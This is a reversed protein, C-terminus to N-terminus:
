EEASWGPIPTLPLDKNESGPVAIEKASPEEAAKEPVAKAATEKEEIKEAGKDPSTAPPSADASMAKNPPLAEANGKAQAIIEELKIGGEKLTRLFVATEAIAAARAVVPLKLYEDINDRLHNLNAKSEEGFGGKEMLDLDPLHGGDPARKRSLPIQLVDLAMGIRRIQKTDDYKQFVFNQFAFCCATPIKEERIAVPQYNGPLKQGEYYKPMGYVVGSLFQDLAQFAQVVAGKKSLAGYAILRNEATMSVGIRDDTLLAEALDIVEERPIPCTYA